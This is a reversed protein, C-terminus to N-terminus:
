EIRWIKVGGNITLTRFMKGNRKGYLIASAGEKYVSGSPIFLSEGVKMDKYRSSMTAMGM